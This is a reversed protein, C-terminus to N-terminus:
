RKLIIKNIHKRWWKTPEKDLKKADKGNMNNNCLNAHVESKM